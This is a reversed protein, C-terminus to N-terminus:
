VLFFDLIWVIVDATVSSIMFLYRGASVNAYITSSAQMRSVHTSVTIVCCSLREHPISISHLISTILLFALLIVLV